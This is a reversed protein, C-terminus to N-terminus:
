KELRIWAHVMPAAGRKNKSRQRNLRMQYEKVLASVQTGDEGTWVFYHHGHGWQISISYQGAKM